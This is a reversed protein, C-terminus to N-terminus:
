VEWSPTNSVKRPATTLNLSAWFYYGVNIANFVLTVMLPLLVAAEIVTQGETGPLRRALM